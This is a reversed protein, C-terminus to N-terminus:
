LAKVMVNFTKQVAKVESFVSNEELGGGSLVSFDFETVQEINKKLSRLPLLVGITIAIGVVFGVVSFVSSLTVGKQISLDVLGFFDQRPIIVFLFFQEPTEFEVKSVVVMWKSGTSLTFEQHVKQTSSVKLASIDISLAPIESWTSSPSLLQGIEQIVPDSFNATKLFKGKSINPFLTGNLNTVIIQGQLDTLMVRSDPSPSVKDFIPPLTYATSFVSGCTYPSAGNLLGPIPTACRVYTFFGSGVIEPIWTGESGCSDLKEYLYGKDVNERAGYLFAPLTVNPIMMKLDFNYMGSLCKTLDSYDCWISWFGGFIDTYAISNVMRAGSPVVPATGTINYRQTCIIRDMFPSNQFTVRAARNVNDLLHFGETKNVMAFQVADNSLFIDNARKVSTLIDTLQVSLDIVVSPIIALSFIGITLTLMVVALPIGCFMGKKIKVQANNSIEGALQKVATKETDM